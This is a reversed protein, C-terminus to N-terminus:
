PGESPDTPQPGSAPSATTRGGGVSSHGPADTRTTMVERMWQVLSQGREERVHEVPEVAQVCGESLLVVRDLLLEVEAVQHTAIVVTQVELDVFSLIGQTLVQRLLPDLPALPEDMLLLPARRALALVVKLRERDGRSLERVRDSLNLRMFAMLEAAKEVDLDTFQRRHFQLSEGITFFPYLTDQESTYAVMRAIRRSAPVGAVWVRGQSPYALGAMLKLLTSKGSANPGIIGIVEGQSLDLSVNRLAWRGAYRKCVNELAAIADM